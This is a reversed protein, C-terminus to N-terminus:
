IIKYSVGLQFNRILFKSDVENGQNDTVIIDSASFISSAFQSNILFRDTLNVRAGFLLGVDVKNVVKDKVEDWVDNLKYKEKANIGISMGAFVSIPKIIKYEVSPMIDIFQFSYENADQNGVKDSKYGKKSYQLDLSVAVKDTIDISPRLSLYYNTKSNFKVEDIGTVKVNSFNAGAGGFLNIQAFSTTNLSFITFVFFLLHKM